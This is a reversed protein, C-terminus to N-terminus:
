RSRTDVDVDADDLHLLFTEVNMDHSQFFKKKKQHYKRIVRCASVFRFWRLRPQDVIHIYIPKM